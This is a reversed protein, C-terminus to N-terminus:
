GGLLDDHGADIVDSGEGVARHKAACLVLEPLVRVLVSEAASHAETAEGELGFAAPRTDDLRAKLMARIAEPGEQTRINWTFAVLDRWYSDPEFLAVAAGVDGSALATSFDALWTSAVLTPHSSLDTM